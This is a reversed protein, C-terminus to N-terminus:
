NNIKGLRFIDKTNINEIEILDNTEKILKLGFSNLINKKNKNFENGYFIYINIIIEKLIHLNSLLKMCVSISEIKEALDGDFNFKKLDLFNLETNKKPDFSSLKDVLFFATPHVIESISGYHKITEQWNSNDIMSGKEIIGKTKYLIKDHEFILSNETLIEFIKNKFNKINENSLYKIVDNIHIKKDINSFEERFVTKLMDILRNDFSSNKSKGMDIRIILKAFDIWNKNKLYDLSKIILYYYFYTLELDSRILISSSIFDNEDICRLYNKKLIISKKEINDALDVLMELPYVFKFVFNNKLQDYENKYLKNISGILEKDAEISKKSALFLKKQINEYYNLKRLDKASTM